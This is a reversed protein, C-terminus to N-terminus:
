SVSKTSHLEIVDIAEGQYSSRMLKHVFPVLVMECGLIDDCDPRCRIVAVSAAVNGRDHRQTLIQIRIELDKTRHWIM